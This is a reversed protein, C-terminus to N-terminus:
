RLRESDVIRRLQQNERALNDYAGVAVVLLALATLFAVLLIGATM